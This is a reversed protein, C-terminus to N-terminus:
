GYNMTSPSPIMPRKGHFSIVQKLHCWFWLEQILCLQFLTTQHLTCVKFTCVMRISNVQLFRILTTSKTQLQWPFMWILSDGTWCWLHHPMSTYDLLELSYQWCIVAAHVFPIFIMVISDTSYFNIPMTGHGSMGGSNRQAMGHGFLKRFWNAGGDRVNSVDLMGPSSTANNRRERADSDM